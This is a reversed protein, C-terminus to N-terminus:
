LKLAICMFEIVLSIKKLSYNTGDWVKLTGETGGSVIDGNKLVELSFVEYLHAKNITVALKLGNFPKKCVCLPNQDVLQCKGTTKYQGRCFVHCIGAQYDLNQDCVLSSQGSINVLDSKDFLEVSCKLCEFSADIICKQCQSIGLCDQCTKIAKQCTETKCNEIWHRAQNVQPEADIFGLFFLVFILLFFKM